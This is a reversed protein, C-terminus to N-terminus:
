DSLWAPARDLLGRLAACDQLEGALAALAPTGVALAVLSRGLADPAIGLIFSSPLAALLLLPGFTLWHAAIKAATAQTM